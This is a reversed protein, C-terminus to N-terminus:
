ASFVDRWYQADEESYPRTYGCGMLDLTPGASALIRTGRVDHEPLMFNWTHMTVVDGLDGQFVENVRLRLDVPTAGADQDYEGRTVEQITGDFAYARDDLRHPYESVCSVAPGIETSPWARHGTAPARPPRERAATESPANARGCSALVLVFVFVTISVRRSM